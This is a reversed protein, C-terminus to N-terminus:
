SRCSLMKLVKKNIRKSNWMMHPTRSMEGDGWIQWKGKCSGELIFCVCFFGLLLGFLFLVYFVDWQPHQLTEYHTRSYVWRDM